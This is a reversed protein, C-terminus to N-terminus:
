LFLSLFSCMKESVISDLWEARLMEQLFIQPHQPSWETPLTSARYVSSHVNLAWFAPSFFFVAFNSGLSIVWYALVEQQVFVPVETQFDGLRRQLQSYSSTSTVGAILFLSLWIGPPIPHLPTAWKCGAWGSIYLKLSLSLDQRLPIFSLTYLWVGSTRWQGNYVLVRCVSLCLCRFPTDTLFADWHRITNSLSILGPVGVTGCWIM